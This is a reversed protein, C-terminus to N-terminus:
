ILRPNRTQGSQGPQQHCYVTHLTEITIKAAGATAIPKVFDNGFGPGPPTPALGANVVGPAGGACSGQDPFAVAGTTAVAVIVVAVALTSLKCLMHGEIGRMRLPAKVKDGCIKNVLGALSGPKKM